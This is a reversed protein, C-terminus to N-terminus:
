KVQIVKYKIVQLWIEDRWRGFIGNQTSEYNKNTQNFVFLNEIFFSFITLHLSLLEVVCIDCGYMM